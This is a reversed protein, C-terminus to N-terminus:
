LKDMQDLIVKKQKQFDAETIAGIDLLSHLERIQKIYTSKLDAARIPTIATPLKEVTREPSHASKKFFSGKPPSNLSEHRGGVVTEAWVRYQLNTFVTKHKARLEDVIDDVRDAREECTSKKRKRPNDEECDSTDSTRKKSRNKRGNCWLMVSKIRMSDSGKIEYGYENQEVLIAFIM